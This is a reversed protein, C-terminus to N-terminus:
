RSTARLTATMKHSNTLLIQVKRIHNRAIAVIASHIPIPKPYGSYAPNISRPHCPPPPRERADLAEACLANPAM